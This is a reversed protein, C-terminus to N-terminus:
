WVDAISLAPDSSGGAGDAIKIDPSISGDIEALQAVQRLALRLGL